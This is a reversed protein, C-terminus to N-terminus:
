AYRIAQRLSASGAEDRISWLGRKLGPDKNTIEHNAAATGAIFDRAATDTGTALVEVLANVVAAAPQPAPGPQQSHAPQPMWAAVPLAALLLILAHPATQAAVASPLCLSSCALLVAQLANRNM